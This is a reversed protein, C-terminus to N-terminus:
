VDPPSVIWTVGDAAPLEDKAQLPLLLIVGHLHIPPQHLVVKVVVLCKRGPIMDEQTLMKTMSVTNFVYEFLYRFKKKVIWSM